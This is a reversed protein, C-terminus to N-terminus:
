KRGGPRRMERYLIDALASRITNYKSQDEFLSSYTEQSEMYSTQAADSFAQPFISEAFIQPDSSVAMNALKQDARLKDYLAGIMARDGGGSLSGQYKENIRRIIDNLPDKGEPKAGGKPEAPAYVGDGDGLSIDGEFTKELKYMELKLMKEIDEMDANRTYGGESLLYATIDDEFRKETTDTVPM